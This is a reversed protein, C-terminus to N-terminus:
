VGWAINRLVKDVCSDDEWFCKNICGCEPCTPKHEGNDSFTKHANVSHACDECKRKGDKVVAEVLTMDTCSM